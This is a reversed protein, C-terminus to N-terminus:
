TKDGESPRDMAGILHLLSSKGSGSPGVIAAMGHEPLSLDIGDLARVVQDGRQYVKSVGRLAILADATRIDSM